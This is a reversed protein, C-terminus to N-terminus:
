NSEEEEKNLNIDSFEDSLTDFITKQEEKTIKYLEFVIKDIKNRIKKIENINMTVNKIIEKEKEKFVNFDFPIPLNKIEEWPKDIFKILVVKLYKIIEKSAILTVNTKDKSILKISYRRLHNQPEFLPAYASIEGIRKLYFDKINKPEINIGQHNRLIRQYKSPLTSQITDINIEEEKPPRDLNTLKVTNFFRSFQVLKKKL